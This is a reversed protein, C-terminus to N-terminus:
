NVVEGQAVICVESPDLEHNSRQHLIAVRGNSVAALCHSHGGDGHKASERSQMM